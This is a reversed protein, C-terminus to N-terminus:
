RGASIDAAIRRSPNGLRSRVFYRRPAPTSAARIRAERWIDVSTSRVAHLRGDLGSDGIWRGPAPMSAAGARAPHQGDVSIDASVPTFWAGPRCRHFYRETLAVGNV